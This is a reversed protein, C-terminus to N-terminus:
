LEQRRVLKWDVLSARNVWRQGVDVDEYVIEYLGCLTPEVADSDSSGSEMANIKNELGVIVKVAISLLWNGYFLQQFSIIKPGSM